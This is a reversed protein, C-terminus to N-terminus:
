DLDNVIKFASDQVEKCQKSFVLTGGAGFVLGLTMAAPAGLGAVPATAFLGLLGMAAAGLTGNKISEKECKIAAERATYPDVGHALMYKELAARSTADRVLSLLGQSSTDPM